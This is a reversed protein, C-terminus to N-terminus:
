FTLKNYGVLTKYVEARLKGYQRQIKKLKGKGVVLGLKTTAMRYQVQWMRFMANMILLGEVRKQDPAVKEIELQNKITSRLRANFQHCWTEWELPELKDEGQYNTQVRKWRDELEKFWEMLPLRVPKQDMNITDEM